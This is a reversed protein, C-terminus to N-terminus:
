AIRAGPMGLGIQGSDVWKGLYYKKQSEIRATDYAGIQGSRVLSFVHADIRKTLSNWEKIQAAAAEHGPYDKAIVDISGQRQSSGSYVKGAKELMVLKAKAWQQVAQQEALQEQRQEREAKQRLGIHYSPDKARSEVRIFMTQNVMDTSANEASFTIGKWPMLKEEYVFLDKLKKLAEKTADDIYGTREIVPLGEARLVKNISDQFRSIEYGYVVSPTVTESSIEQTTIGRGGYKVLGQRIESHPDSVYKDHGQRAYTETGAIKVYGPITSPKLEPPLSRKDNGPSWNNFAAQMAFITDKGVLGDTGLRRDRDKEIGNYTRQFNKVLAEFKKGEVGKLESTLDLKEGQIFGKEILLNLLKKTEQVEAGSTVRDRGAKFVGVLVEGNEIRSLVSHNLQKYSDIRSATNRGSEELGTSRYRDSVLDSANLRPNLGNNLVAQSALIRSNVM